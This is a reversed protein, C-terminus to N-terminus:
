LLLVGPCGGGSGGRGGPRSAPGPSLRDKSPKPQDEKQKAPPRKQTSRIHYRRNTLIAESGSITSNRTQVAGGVAFGVPLPPPSRGWRKWHAKRYSPATYVCCMSSKWGPLIKSCGLTDRTEASPTPCDLGNHHRAGAWLALVIVGIRLQGPGSFTGSFPLRAGEGERGRAPRGPLTGPGRPCLNAMYVPGFFSIPGRKRKRASVGDRGDQRKSAILIQRM